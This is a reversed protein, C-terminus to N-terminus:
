RALPGSVIAKSANASAAEQAFAEIQSLGRRWAVLALPRRLVVWFSAGALNSAPPITEALEDRWTPNLTPM